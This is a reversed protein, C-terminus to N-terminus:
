QRAWPRCSSARRTPSEALFRTSMVYSGANFAGWLEYDSFVMRIGGRALAKERFILSMHAVEVQHNRLALEGNPLPLPVM